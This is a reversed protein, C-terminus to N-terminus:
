PIVKIDLGTKTTKINQKVVIKGGDKQNMPKFLALLALTTTM